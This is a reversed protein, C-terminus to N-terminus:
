VRVTRHRCQGIDPIKFYVRKLRVAYML